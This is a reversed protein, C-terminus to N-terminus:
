GSGLPWPPLGESFIEWTAEVSRDHCLYTVGALAWMMESLRRASDSWRGTEESLRSLQLGLQSLPLEDFMEVHECLEQLSEHHSQGEWAEVDRLGDIFALAAERGFRRIALPGMLWIQGIRGHPFADEGEGHETDAEAAHEDVTHQRQALPQPPEGARLCLESQDAIHLVNHGLM